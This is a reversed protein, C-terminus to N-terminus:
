TCSGFNLLLPRDGSALSSLMIEKNDLLVPILPVPAGVHTQPNMNVSSMRWLARVTSTGKFLSQKLRAELAAGSYESSLIKRRINNPLHDILFIMTTDRIVAALLSLKRWSGRATVLMTAVGAAYALTRNHAFLM